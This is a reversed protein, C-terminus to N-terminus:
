ELLGKNITRIPKQLKEFTLEDSNLLQDVDIKKDADEAIEAINAISTNLKSENLVVQAKILPPLLLLLIFLLQKV